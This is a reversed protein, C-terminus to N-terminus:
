DAGETRLVPVEGTVVARRAGLSARLTVLPQRTDDRCKRGRTHQIGVDLCDVKDVRSSVFLTESRSVTTFTLSTQM